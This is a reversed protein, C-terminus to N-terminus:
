ALKEMYDEAMAEVAEYSEELYSEPNGEELLLTLLETQAKALEPMMHGDMDRYLSNPRPLHEWKAFNFDYMPVGCEAFLASYYANVDGLNDAKVRGM